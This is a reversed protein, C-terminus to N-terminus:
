FITGFHVNCLKGETLQYKQLVDQQWCKQTNLMIPEPTSLM